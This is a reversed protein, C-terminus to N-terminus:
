DFNLRLDDFVLGAGGDNYIDLRDLSSFSKDFKVVTDTPRLSVLQRAVIEHNLRGVFFYSCITRGLCAFHGSKITFHGSTSSLGAKNNTDTYVAAVSGSVVSQFGPDDPYAQTAAALVYRDWVLGDYGSPIHRLRQGDALGEFTVTVKSGPVVADAVSSFLLLAGFALLLRRM